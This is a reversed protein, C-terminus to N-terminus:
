FYVRLYCCGCCSCWWLLLLLRILKIYWLLVVAAAHNYYFIRYLKPFVFICIWMSSSFFCFIILNSNKGFSHLLLISDNHWRSISTDCNIIINLHKIQINNRFNRILLLYWGCILKWVILSIKQHQVCFQCRLTDTPASRCCNWEVANKNYKVKDTSYVADWMPFAAFRCQRWCAIIILIPFVFGFEMLIRENLNHAKWIHNNSTPNLAM